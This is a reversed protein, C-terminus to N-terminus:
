GKPSWAPMPTGLVRNVTWGAAVLLTVGAVIVTLETPLKLLGLSVIFVTAGAPPHSTGLLLLVAGALALSLAAGVRALTVGEVLVSADDYLGFLHLCLVGALVAVVHGVLTNRPGAGPSMPREFLLATPGLSPFLLPQRLAHAALGSIGLAVACTLFAYPAGGGCRGLRGM